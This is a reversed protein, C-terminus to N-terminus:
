TENGMERNRMLGMAVVGIHVISSYAILGKMDHNVLCILSCYVSGVASILIYFAMVDRRLFPCFVIAGYSGLKLLVGALAMSGAVPAEVHAKPLWLHVLYLPTKVM